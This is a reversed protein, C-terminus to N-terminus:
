VSTNGPISIHVQLLGPYVETILISVHDLIGLYGGVQSPCGRTDQARQYGGVSALEEM